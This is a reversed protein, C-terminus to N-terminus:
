ECSSLFCKRRVNGQLTQKELHVKQTTRAETRGNELQLYKHSRNGHLGCGSSQRCTPTKQRERNASRLRSPHLSPSIISLFSIWGTKAQTPQWLPRVQFSRSVLFCQGLEGPVPVKSQGDWLLGKRQQFSFIKNELEWTWNLNTNLQM